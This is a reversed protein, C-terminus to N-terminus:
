RHWRASRRFRSLLSSKRKKKQKVKLDVAIFLEDNQAADLCAKGRKNLRAALRAVRGPTLEGSLLDLRRELVRRGRKCKGGRAAAAVALAGVDIESGETSPPPVDTLRTGKGTLKAGISGDPPVDDPIAIEIELMDEPGVPVNDVRVIPCSPGRDCLGARCTPAGGTSCETGEACSTGDPELTCSARCCSGFAGNDPGDDCEEGFDLVGNGCRLSRRATVDRSVEGYEVWAVVFDGADDVAVDPAYPAYGAPPSVRFPAAVPTGTADFRRVRAEYRQQWAVVFTGRSDSAVRPYAARAGDYTNVVFTPPPGDGEVVGGAIHQTGPYSFPYENWVVVFDSETGAAVQPGYAYQSKTVAVEPGATGAPDFRRAVVGYQDWAVVFGGDAAVAVSPRGELYSTDTVAVEGESAGSPDFREARVQGGDNWAVVFTGEANRDISARAAVNGVVIDNADLSAGDKAFRRIRLTGRDEWLVVFNGDADMAVDPYGQGSTPSASPNFPAGIAGASADYPQVLVESGNQWTVVFAGDAASAVEPAGGYQTVTFPPGLPELPCEIQVQGGGVPERSAAGVRVLYASGAAAPFTVSSQAGCADDNCGVVLGDGPPCAGLAEACTAFPGYVVVKTDVTTAGCTSVTVDGTRDAQWCTWSDNAIAEQGTFGCGAHELGDTGAFLGTDFYTATPCTEAVMPTVCFGGPISGALAFRAGLVAVSAVVSTVFRSSPM